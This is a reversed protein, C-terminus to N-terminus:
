ATKTTEATKKLPSSYRFGLWRSVGFVVPTSQEVTIYAQADRIRRM